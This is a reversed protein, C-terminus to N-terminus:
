QLYEAVLLLFWCSGEPTKVARYTDWGADDFGHLFDFLSDSTVEQSIWSSELAFVREAAEILEERMTSRRQDKLSSLVSKNTLM